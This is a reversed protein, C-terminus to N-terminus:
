SGLERRITELLAASDIRDQVSTSVYKWLVTGDKGVLFQSPIAIDTGKPGGHAHFVGYSKVVTRAADSLIPFALHNVAVVHASQEPTDVAITILGGGRRVLEQNVAGLGRLEAM